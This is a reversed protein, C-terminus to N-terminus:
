LFNGLQSRTSITYAWSKPQIGEWGCISYWLMSTKPVYDCTQHHIGYASDIQIDIM